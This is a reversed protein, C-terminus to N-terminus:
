LEGRLSCGLVPTMIPLRNQDPYGGQLLATVASRGANDGSHGRFGTIGGKFLLHGGADYLLTQGSTFAGFSQAVAAQRDEFVQVGPIASAIRWLDTRAWTSAETAPLYFFVNAEVQGQAHAMIIALEGVSAVSCECQPHAFMVLTPRGQGRKIPADAPWDLPPTGPRGPTTSYKWLVSIGFAVAPVWLAVATAIVLNKKLRPLVSM